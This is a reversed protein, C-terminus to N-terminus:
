NSPVELEVMAIAPDLGDTDSTRPESPCLWISISVAFLATGIIAVGVTQATDPVEGLIIYACVISIVFGFSVALSVQQGSAKRLATFWMMQSFFVLGAFILVWKTVEGGCSFPDTFHSEGNAIM